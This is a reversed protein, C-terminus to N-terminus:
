ALDQVLVQEVDEVGGHGLWDAEHTEKLPSRERIHLHRRQARDPLMDAIEHADVVLLLNAAILPPVADLEHLINSPPRSLILIDM